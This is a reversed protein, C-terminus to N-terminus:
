CELKEKNKRQFMAFMLITLPVFTKVIKEEQIKGLVSLSCINM